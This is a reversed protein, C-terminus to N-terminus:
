FVEAGYLVTSLCAQRWFKVYILRNVKRRDFSSSFLVGVKGRRIPIITLILPFHALTIRLSVLTRTNM